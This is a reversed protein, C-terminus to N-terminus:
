GALDRLFREALPVATGSGGGGDEVFIAFALDDQWGVFWAHAVDEGAEATGTKGYVDGGPVGQLASGTGDTVVARLAERLDAVAAEALPAPEPAPPAAPDVVLTPPLWAGRAVAATAAAMAAPSVQTDGQGYSAQARDLESGGTPVSGTFTDIGLQWDGGLGLAGGATAIGDEGLRPALSAFATNCSVAVAQRFPIEGRDGDFANGIRFGEVSLEAPCPVPTDLQVEGAALLGYATVLKFTSGPAVAGTLALNVPHAQEGETNAVALVAGDEVRIAVLAAPRDDASLAREAARQVAVDLTTALDTGPVPEIRDLEIETVEDEPAPRAIVVAQGTVGRLQEDYRQALGGHGVQDGAVLAPNGALDEASAESVTGLLAQAFTRSPALQREGERFVTGPLPQIQDRVQDYDERRLTIVSVFAAPEAAEVQEPLDALDLRSDVTRLASEVDAVLQELDTVRRPEIGVEVVERATVLPQGAGDLIGGRTSALRRLELEDGEILEPHVVAPEWIMRWGGDGNTLRVPSRYSWTGGGPLPWDVIIETSAVADSVEVEGAALAPPQEALEGSLGAIAEAVEATPVPEGTPSVLPVGDLAGTPWGALFEELVQKADDEDSSCGAAAMGAILLVATLAAARVRNGYM